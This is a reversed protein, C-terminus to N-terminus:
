KWGPTISSANHHKIIFAAENLSVSIIFPSIEYTMTMPSDTHMLGFILPYTINASRMEIKHIINTRLETVMTEPQHSGTIRQKYM